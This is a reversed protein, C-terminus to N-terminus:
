EKTTIIYVSVDYGLYKDSVEVKSADTWDVSKIADLNHLLVDVQEDLDTEAKDIDTNPSIITIVFDVRHSANPTQPLRTIKQQKLVVCVRDLQDYSRQTPILKWGNRGKPLLPTLADVLAQRAAGM